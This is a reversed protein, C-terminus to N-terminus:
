EGCCTPGPTRQGGLGASPGAMDSGVLGGGGWNLCPVCPAGAGGGGVVSGHWPGAAGGGSEPAM